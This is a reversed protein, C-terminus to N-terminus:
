ANEANEPAGSEPAGAAAPPQEIMLDRIELLSKTDEGALFLRAGVGQVPGDPAQKWDTVRGLKLEEDAEGVTGAYLNPIFVEAGETKKTDLRAPVWLVDRPFRPAPIALAKVYELPIWFYNGQTMVELVPGLVDDCDRLDTFPQGNITGTFVPSAAAAKELTAKADAAKGERLQDLATLRLELHEATAGGLLKPRVGLQFAKRRAAESELLRLYNSRSAEIEPDECQVLDLQKKARDLEGAFGLLEFLFLRRNQDGPKEKVAATQADIAAKLQGAKFLEDATPM